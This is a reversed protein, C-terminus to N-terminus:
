FSMFDTEVRRGENAYDDITCLSIRFDKKAQLAGYLIFNETKQIAFIKAGGAPFHQVNRCCDSGDTEMVTNSFFIINQHIRYELQIFIM